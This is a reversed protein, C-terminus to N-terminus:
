ILTKRDSKIRELLHIFDESKLKGTNTNQPSPHYSAYLEPYADFSVKLGFKFPVKKFEGKTRMYSFYADYALHGLCLVAKLNKLLSIEKHLYTSSCVLVEKPLPKNNPPVCKVVATMFCGRLILGDNRYESTRQNAFGTEYLANILFKASLDGTFLRGTRNGGHPAPALGLILLWGKTDGFGPVPKRWYTEEEFKPKPAVSERFTVLRPCLRCSQITDEFQSLKDM